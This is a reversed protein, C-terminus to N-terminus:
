DEIKIHEEKKYAIKNARAEYAQELPDAQNDDLFDHQLKDEEIILREEADKHEEIEGESTIHRIEIDDQKLERCVLITRHCTLPDKEACMLAIRYHEMGKKLRRLGAQFLPEEALYNYQVVGNEYCDPNDSRAGLEKGLFVYDINHEQLSIKLAERNFQDVYESQSYPISRVDAIATIGNLQLIKIFKEITHNSHGVTYIRLNEM